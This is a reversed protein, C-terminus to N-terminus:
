DVVLVIFWADMTILVNWADSTLIFSQGLKVHGGAGWYSLPALPFTSLQSASAKM